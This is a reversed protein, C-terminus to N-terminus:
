GRGTTKSLLQTKLVMLMKFDIHDWDVPHGVTQVIFEKEKGAEAGKSQAYDYLDRLAKNVEDPGKQKDLPLQNKADNREVEEASVSGSQVMKEAQKTTIEKAKQLKEIGLILDEHIRDGFAELICRNRARTQAMHNQYGKLTGMKITSPSCEGLVWDTVPKDLKGIMRAKCVAKQVDDTAIQVWEYEFKLDPLYQKAKQTLGLKNVYPQDGLITVGFPSIQLARAIWVILNKEKAEKSNPEGKNMLAAAGAWTPKEKVKKPTKSLSQIDTTELAENRPAKEKAKKVM